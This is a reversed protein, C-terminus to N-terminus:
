HEVGIEFCVYKFFNICLGQSDNLDYHLTFNEHGIRLFKPLVSSYLIKLFSPVVFPLIAQLFSLTPCVFVFKELKMTIPQITDAM